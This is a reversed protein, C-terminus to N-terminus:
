RRRGSAPPGPHDNATTRRAAANSRTAVMLAGGQTTADPRRHRSKEMTKRYKCQKLFDMVEAKRFKAPRHPSYPFSIRNFVKKIGAEVEFLSIQCNQLVKMCSDNLLSGNVLQMYFNEDPYKFDNGCKRIEVPLIPVGARRATAIEVLVWPRTLVDMTLLLVINHSNLVQEQLLELNALDESDLFVPTDMIIHKMVPDERMISELEQRLLSAETGAHLKHHSLFVLHQSRKELTALTNKARDELTVRFQQIQIPALTQQLIESGLPDVDDDSEQTEWAAGQHSSQNTPEHTLKIKIQEAEQIIGEIDM